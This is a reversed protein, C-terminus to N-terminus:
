LLSRKFLHNLNMRSWFIVVDKIIFYPNLRATVDGPHMDFVPHKCGYLHKVNAVIRETSVGVM